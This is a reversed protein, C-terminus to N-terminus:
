AFGTVELEHLRTRGNGDSGGSDNVSIEPFSWSVNNNVTTTQVLNGNIIVDAANGAGQTAIILTHVTNFDSAYPTLDIEEVDLYGGVDSYLICDPDGEVSFTLTIDILGWDFKAPAAIISLNKVDDNPTASPVWEFRIIIDHPKSVDIQSLEEPQEVSTSNAFGALPSSNNEVSGAVNNVQLDQGPGFPGPVVVDWIGFPATSLNGAYSGYLIGFDQDFVIPIPVPTPPNVIINGYPSDMNYPGTNKLILRDANEGIMNLVM